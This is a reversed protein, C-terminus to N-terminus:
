APDICRSRPANADAVEFGGRWIMPGAVYLVVVLGVWGVWRQWELGRALLNAAVGVVCQLLGAALLWFAGRAVGAVALVSDLSMSVDALIIQRLTKRQETEAAKRGCHSRLYPMKWCVWLQLLGGALLAGIIRLLAMAFHGLGSRIVTAGFSASYSPGFSRGIRCAPSPWAVVIANDGALTIDIPV